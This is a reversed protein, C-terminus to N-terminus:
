TSSRVDDSGAPTIAAAAFTRQVHERALTAGEESWSRFSISAGHRDASPEVSVIGGNQRYPCLTGIRRLTELDADTIERDVRVTILAPHVEEPSAVSFAERALKANPVFVRAGDASVVTIGFIGVDVVHGDSTGFRLRAGIRIRGRWIMVLGWILARGHIAIGVGVAAALVSLSIGLLLPARRWLFWTIVVAVFVVTAANVSASAIARVHPTLRRDQGLALRLRWAGLVLAVLVLTLLWTWPSRLTGILSVVDSSLRDALSTGNVPDTM